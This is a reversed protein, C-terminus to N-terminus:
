ERALRIDFDEEYDRETRIREQEEKLKQAEEYKFTSAHFIKPGDGWRDQYIDFQIEVRDDIQLQNFEKETIPSEDEGNLNKGNNLSVDCFEVMYETKPQCIQIGFIRTELTTISYLNSVRGIGSITGKPIFIIDAFFFLDIAHLIANLM